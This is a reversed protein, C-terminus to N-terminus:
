KIREFRVPGWDRRGTVPDDEALHVILTNKDLVRVIVKIWRPNAFGEQAIRIKGFFSNSTYRGNWTVQGAPVTPTGTIKIAEVQDGIHRIRVKNTYPGPNYGHGLWEGNLDFREDNTQSSVPSTTRIFSIPAVFGNTANPRSCDSDAVRGWGSLPFGRTSPFIGFHLHATRSVIQNNVTEKYVSITGIQQGATVSDGERLPTQIHGYVALFDGSKSSHRIVLAYNGIGWGSREEPGSKRTVKGSGISYVATGVSFILDSGNHRLGSFYSRGCALWNTDDGFSSNLPYHFGTPTKPPEARQSYCGLVLSLMLVVLSSLSPTVKPIRRGTPSPLTRNVLRFPFM